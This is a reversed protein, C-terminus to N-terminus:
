SVRVKKVIIREPKFHRFHNHNSTGGIVCVSICEDDKFTAFRFQFEGREGTVKVPHGPLLTHFDTM